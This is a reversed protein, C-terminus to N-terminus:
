LMNCERTKSSSLKRLDKEMLVLLKISFTILYGWKGSASKSCHESIKSDACFKDWLVIFDCNCNNGERNRASLFESPYGGFEARRSHAQMNM